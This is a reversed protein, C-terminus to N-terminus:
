NYFFENELEQPFQYNFCEPGHQVTGIGAMMCGVTSEMIAYSKPDGFGYTPM